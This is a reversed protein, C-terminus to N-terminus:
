GEFVRSSRFFLEGVGGMFLPGDGNEELLEGLERLGKKASEWVEEGREETEALFRPLPM